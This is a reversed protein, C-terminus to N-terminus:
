SPGIPLASGGVLTSMDIATIIMTRPLVLMLMLVVISTIMILMGIM